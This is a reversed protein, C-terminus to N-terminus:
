PAGRKHETSRTLTSPAFVNGQADSRADGVDRRILADIAQAPATDPESSFLPDLDKGPPRGHARRAKQLPSFEPSQFGRLVTEPEGLNRWAAELRAIKQEHEVLEGEATAVADLRARAEAHITEVDKHAKAIAEAAQARAEDRQAFAEDRQAFADTIQKAFRKSVAKAKKPNLALNCHAVFLDSFRALMVLFTEDDCDM